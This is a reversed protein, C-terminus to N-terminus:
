EWNELFDDLSRRDKKTPKGEGFQRYNAQAAQYVKYKEVEEMPTTDIICEKVLPAGVRRDLIGIVKYSFTATNKSIQITDGVKIEKAPKVQEGNLKVKGKSIWETALSRTKALRVCWVYKDVRM